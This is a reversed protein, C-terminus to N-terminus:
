VTLLTETSFKYLKLVFGLVQCNLFKFPKTVSLYIIGM